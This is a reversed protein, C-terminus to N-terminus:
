PKRKMLSGVIIMLVGLGGLAVIAILFPDIKSFGSKISLLVSSPTPSPPIETPTSTLTPARTPPPQSPTRTPRPTRTPTVSPISTATPTDGVKILLKQGVYIDNSSLNNITKLQNITLGYAVAISYLSDGNQVEHIVTGDPGPTSTLVLYLRKGVATDEPQSALAPIFILILSFILSFSLCTFIRRNM